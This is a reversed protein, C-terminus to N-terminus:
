LLDNFVNNVSDFLEQWSDANSLEVFDVCFNSKKVLKILQQSTYYNLFDDDSSLWFNKLYNSEIYKIFNIHKIEM